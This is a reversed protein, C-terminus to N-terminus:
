NMKTTTHTTTTENKNSNVEHLGNYAVLLNDGLEVVASCPDTISFFRAAANLRRLDKDDEEVVEPLESEDKMEIIKIEEESLNDNNLNLKQKKKVPEPEESDARIEQKSTPKLLDRENAM